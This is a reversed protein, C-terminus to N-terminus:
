SPINLERKARKFAEDAEAVMDQLVVLMDEKQQEAGPGFEDRSLALYASFVADSRRLLRRLRPEDHLELVPKETM